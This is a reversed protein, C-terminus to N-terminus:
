ILAFFAGGSAPTYTIVLKPRNSQTAHYLTYFTVNTGDVGAAAM